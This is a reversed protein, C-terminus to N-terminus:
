FINEPVLIRLSSFCSCKHFRLISCIIIDKFQVKATCGEMMEEYAKKCKWTEEDDAWLPGAAIMVGSDELGQQFELHDHLNEMVPGIGNTPTTTIAYVQWKLMVGSAELVKTRTVTEAM